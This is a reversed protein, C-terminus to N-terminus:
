WERQIDKIEKAMEGNNVNIIDKNVGFMINKIDDFMTTKNDRNLFDFQKLCLNTEKAIINRLSMRGMSLAIWNASLNVSTMISLVCNCLNRPDKFWM